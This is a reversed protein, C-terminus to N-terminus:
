PIVSQSTDLNKPKAVVRYVKWRYNLANNAALDYNNTLTGEGAGTSRVAIPSVATYAPDRRGEQALIYVKVIKLRERLLDADALTKQIESSTSGNVTSGDANSYATVQGSGSMDFGLVVQMDAVCDLLPIYTLQGNAHNVTTKYLIGTNDACTRPIQATNAPRAVFFNVRNFPMRLDSDDVGYIYHIHEKRQPSWEPPLAIGASVDPYLQYFYQLTATNASDYILRSAYRNVGNIPVMDHRTVIIGSNTPIAEAIPTVPPRPSPNLSGSYTVYTWRQAATSRGLNTAKVALYDTGALINFSGAVAALNNGAVIARPIRCSASAGSPRPLGDNYSSHPASAAEKYDPLNLQNADDMSIWPLGFGAQELDHRLMELGVIGEINSEESARIKIAQSVIFNFSSGTIMIIIVFVLMVVILEVLTLGTCDTLPAKQKISKRSM